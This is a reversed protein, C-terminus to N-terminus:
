KWELRARKIQMTPQAELDKIHEFDDTSKAKGKLRLAMREIFNRKPKEESM